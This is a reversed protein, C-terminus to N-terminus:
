NRSGSTELWRSLIRAGWSGSLEPHFQCGLIGGREVASVFEGGYTTVSAAWGSPVSGIRYSNAFYAWGEEVYRSGELPRVRNWGLQPVLEGADFRSVKGPILGLGSVDPSEDSTQALLQIGVCIALTPDGSELRAALTEKMGTRELEGAAAGFTGVGPLVVRTARSVQVPSDALRPSWGLRRFAALVSALNATGTPVVTVESM